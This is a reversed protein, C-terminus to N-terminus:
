ARSEHILKEHLDILIERNEYARDNAGDHIRSNKEDAREYEKRIRDARASGRLSNRDTHVEDNEEHAQVENELQDGIDDYAGRDYSDEIDRFFLIDYLPFLRLRFIASSAKM